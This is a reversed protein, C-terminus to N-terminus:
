KNTCILGVGGVLQDIFGRIEWLFDFAFWGNEGGISIFSKYVTEQKLQSIDLVKRDLFIADALEKDHDRDWVRGGKDTWRSIVQDKEIEEQAKKVSDIYNIPKIQPFYKTANDNQIVVESKLGEILAKAVRYPVPTFLNLWLSSLNISLFPVPILLRKLSLAKATQIMMEKYSLQES